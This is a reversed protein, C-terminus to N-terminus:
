AAKAKDSYGYGALLLRSLRQNANFLDALAAWMPAAPIALLLAGAENRAELQGNSYIWNTM